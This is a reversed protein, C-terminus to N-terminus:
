RRHRCSVRGRAARTATPPQHRHGRQNRGAAQAFYANVATTATAATAAVASSVPLGSCRGVFCRPPPSAQCCSRAAAAARFCRAAAAQRAAGCCMVGAGAAHGARWAEVVLFSMSVSVGVSGRCAAAVVVISCSRGCALSVRLRRWVPSSRSTSERCAIVVSAPRTARQKARESRRRRRYSGLRQSLEGVVLGDVGVGGVGPGVGVRM